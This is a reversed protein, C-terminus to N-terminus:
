EPKHIIFSSDRFVFENIHSYITFFYAIVHKWHVALIELCKWPQILTTIYRGICHNWNKVTKLYINWQKTEIIYNLLSILVM